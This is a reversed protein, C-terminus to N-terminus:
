AASCKWEKMFSEIHNTLFLAAGLGQASKRWETDPIPKGSNLDYWQALSSTTVALTALVAFIIKM